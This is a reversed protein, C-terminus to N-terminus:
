QFETKSQNLSKTKLGLSKRVAAIKRLNQTFTGIQSTKYDSEGDNSFKIPSSSKGADKPLWQMNTQSGNDSSQSDKMDSHVSQSREKHSDEM